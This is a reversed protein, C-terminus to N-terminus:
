AQPLCSLRSTKIPRMNQQNGVLGDFVDLFKSFVRVVPVYPPDIVWWQISQFEIFKQVPEKFWCFAVHPLWGIYWMAYSVTSVFLFAIRQTKGFTCSYVMSYDRAIYPVVNWLVIEVLGGGRREIVRHRLTALSKVLLISDEWQVKLLIPYVCWIILIMCIVCTLRKMRISFWIYICVIMYMFIILLYIGYEGLSCTQVYRFFTLLIFSQKIYRFSYTFVVVVVLLVLWCRNFIFVFVCTYYYVTYTYIYIYKQIHM